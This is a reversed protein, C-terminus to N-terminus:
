TIIQLRFLCYFHLCQSSIQCFHSWSVLERWIEIYKTSHSWSPLTFTARAKLTPLLKSDCGFKSHCWMGRETCLERRPWVPGGFIPRGVWFNWAIKLASFTLPLPTGGPCFTAWAGVCRINEWLKPILPFSLVVAKMQYGMQWMFCGDTVDCFALSCCHSWFHHGIM